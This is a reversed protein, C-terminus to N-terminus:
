EVRSTCPEIAKVVALLTVHVGIKRGEGGVQCPLRRSRKQNELFPIMHAVCVCKCVSCVCVCVCQVCWVCWVVCVM